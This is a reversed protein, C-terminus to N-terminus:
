PLAVEGRRYKEWFEKDYRVGKKFRHGITNGKEFRCGYNNGKKFSFRKSSAKSIINAVKITALKKSYLWRENKRLGLSRAKNKVQRIKCCFEEAVEENTHFPFYEKFRREEDESWYRYSGRYRIDGFKVVFRPSATKAGKEKLRRRVTEYPIEVKKSIERITLGQIYLALLGDDISHPYKLVCCGKNGVGMDINKITRYESLLNQM